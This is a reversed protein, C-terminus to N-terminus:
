KGSTEYIDNIFALLCHRVLKQFFSGYPLKQDGSFFRNDIARGFSPDTDWKDGGRMPMSLYMTEGAHLYNSRADYIADLKENLDTKNIKINPSKFDGDKFFGKSYYEIFRKFRVKAKRVNFIKELETREDESLNEPRIIDNFHKGYFLDDKEQLKYLDMVAEIASVLRIFVMEEDIGFERLARAYHYCALIIKQHYKSNLNAIRNLFGYLERAFNRARGPFKDPDFHPSCSRHIPYYKIKTKLSTSSLDGSYAALLFFRCQFFLSFLSILEGQIGSNFLYGKKTATLYDLSEDYSVFKIKLLYRYLGQKDKDLTMQSCLISGNEYDLISPILSESGLEYEGYYEDRNGSKLKELNRVWGMRNDAKSM